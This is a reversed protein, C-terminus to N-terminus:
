AALPPDCLTGGDVSCECSQDPHSGEIAVM